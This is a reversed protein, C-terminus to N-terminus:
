AALSSWVKHSGQGRWSAPLPPRRVREILVDACPRGPAGGQTAVTTRWRWGATIFWVVSVWRTSPNM